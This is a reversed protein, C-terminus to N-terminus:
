LGSPNNCLSPHLKLSPWEPSRPCERGSNVLAKAFPSILHLRIFVLWRFDSSFFFKNRVAEWYRYKGSVSLIQHFDTKPEPQGWSKKKGLSVSDNSNM